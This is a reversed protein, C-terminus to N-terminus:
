LLVKLTTFTGKVTRMRIIYNGGAFSSVNVTAGTDGSYKRAFVCQGSLNYIEIRAIGAAETLNLLNGSISVQSDSIDVCRLLSENFVECVEAHIQFCIGTVHDPVSIRASFSNGATNNM